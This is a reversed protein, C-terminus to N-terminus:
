LYTLGEEVFTVLDGPERAEREVGAARVRELFSPLENAAKAWLAAVFRVGAAGAALADNVSDGVYVADGPLVGLRDLAVHLGEPSPKPHSVDEDGVFVSFAGLNALPRTVDWAGRSKGTVVGLTVGRLRLEDLMTGVGPYVDGFLEGHLARYHGLFEAHAASAREPTVARALAGLESTPHLARLEDYTLRRGAYPELTRLYSELYLDWTDVLTGDLDFLM